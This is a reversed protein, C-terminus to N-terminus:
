IMVLYKGACVQLKRERVQIEKEKEEGKLRMEELMLMKDAQDLLLSAFTFPNKEGKKLLSLALSSLFNAIETKIEIVCCVRLKSKESPM